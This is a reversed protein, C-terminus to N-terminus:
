CPSIRNAFNLSAQSILQRNEQVTDRFIRACEELTGSFEGGSANLHGGGSYHRRCLLDVPFDGVSRMSVKIYDAEERLYAVYVIGPIALPKNVLGETDGKKYGFRNLEDRSLTILAAHAEPWIEMKEAIAYSELRVSAETHTDILCRMMWDKDAGLEMLGAVIRYIEPSNSNYRFGGTDTIMGGLLCTAANTDIKDKWGLACLLRYTLECTSSMEPFSFSVEAEVEPLKHHDILIKPAPSKSVAPALRSLRPFGNYDMCLILDADTVFKEVRPGFSSWAMVQRCGPLVRLYRPPEDPTIVRADKGMACLIHRMALTSGLADGDPSMHGTIAVRRASVLMEGLRNLDNTNFINHM